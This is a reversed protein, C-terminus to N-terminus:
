DNIREFTLINETKSISIIDYDYMYGMRLKQYTERFFADKTEYDLYSKKTLRSGTMSQLRYGAGSSSQFYPSRRLQQTIREKDGNSIVLDFKQYLDNLGTIHNSTIQFDDKLEIKNEKLMKRADAKFFFYDEFAFSLGPILALATFVIAVTKGAKKFHLNVLTWYSVFIILFAFLTIMLISTLFGLETLLTATAMLTLVGAAWFALQRKGQRFPLWFALSILIFFVSTIIFYAM